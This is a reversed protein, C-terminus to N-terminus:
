TEGHSAQSKQYMAPSVGYYKKFVSIFHKDSLFGTRTAVEFVRMDPHSKLLKAAQEMRMGTIYKLYSIGLQKHFLDSLYSSSVSCHDAVDSLSINSQYNRAIYERAQQIVPNLGSEAPAQGLLERLWGLLADAFEDPSLAGPTSRCLGALNELSRQRAQAPFSACAPAALICGACRWLSEGNLPADLALCLGKLDAFWHAGSGAALDRVLQDRCQEIGELAHRYQAIRSHFFPAPAKALPLPLTEALSQCSARLQMPDTVIKGCRCDIPEPIGEASESLLARYLQEIKAELDPESRADVMVCTSGDNAYLAMCGFQPCLRDLLMHLTLASASPASPAEMSGAAYLCQFKAICAFPAMFPRGKERLERYLRYTRASDEELLACLLRHRLPDHRASRGAIKFHASGREQEFRTALADLLDILTKDVLPKLLYDKVNYRIAKQAYEFDSFGSIVIVTIDPYNEHIHRALSLGDVEPMKIDTIVVDVPAEKLLEMAELGDKAVASVDFLASFAPINRTLYTRMLPEDDVIMTHYM